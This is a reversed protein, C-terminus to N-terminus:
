GKVVPSQWGDYVGDLSECLESLQDSVDLITQPEVTSPKVATLRFALDESPDESEHVISFGNRSLEAKARAATARDPLLLVHEVPRVISANDGAQQLQQIVVLETARRIHQPEPFLEHYLGWSPDDQSIVDGGLPSLVLQLKQVTDATSPRTCYFVADFRGATRITCVMRGHAIAKSAQSLVQDIAEVEEAEGLGHEGPQKLPINAVVLMPRTADPVREVLSIDIMVSAPGEGLDTIYPIWQEDQEHPTAM